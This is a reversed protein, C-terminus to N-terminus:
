LVALLRPDRDLIRQHLGALQPGPEMGLERTSYRWADRYAALAEGQRGCRYLALM